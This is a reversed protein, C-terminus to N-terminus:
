LKKGVLEFASSATSYGRVTVHITSPQALTV